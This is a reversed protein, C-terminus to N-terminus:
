LTVPIALSIKSLNQKAKEYAPDIAVAKQFSEKATEIEKKAEEKKGEKVLEKAKIVAVEGKYNNLSAEVSKTEVKAAMKGQEEETLMVNLFKSVKTVLEKELDFFNDTRGTVAATGMQTGKEVSYVQTEIRLSGNMETFSGALMYAAGVLRGIKVVSKEDVLGTMHLEQEQVVSKLREKSIINFQGISEIDTMVMSAIGFEWPQFEAARSRPTGNYYNLVALGKRESRPIKRLYATEGGGCVVMFMFACFVLLGKRTKM